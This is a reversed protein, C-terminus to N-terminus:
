GSANPEGGVTSGVPPPASNGLKAEQEQAALVSPDPSPEQQAKAKAFSEAVEEPSAGGMVAVVAAVDEPGLADWIEPAAIPGIGGPGPVTRFEVPSGFLTLGSAGTIAWRVKIEFSKDAVGTRGPVLAMAVDIDTNMSRGLGRVNVTAVAAREGPLTLARPVNFVRVEGKSM